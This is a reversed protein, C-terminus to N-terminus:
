VDAAVGLLFARADALMYLSGSVLLMQGPQLADRGAAVAADVDEVTRCPVGADRCVGALAEWDGARYSPVRTVIVQSLLPLLEALAKEREKDALMGLVAVISRGPWYERLAAALAQMGAVNHAGDLLILPQQSVIELRGPWRAEALGTRIAEEPLGLRRAAAVALAANVLQHRGLLAIRLGCLEEGSSLDIYDFSQGSADASVFRVAFDRGFEGLDSGCNQAATRIETLAAEDQAATLAPVGPKIIGAKVAAIEAVTSGLYDMHDIAVNTILALEPMIVNTSDIAGGMGVEIVAYDVQQDTFYRLALATSLEFETPPEAGGAQMQALIPKLQGVRRVVEERSIMEGDIVYRERYSHLHPSNFVATRYGAARLMAAVFASVSGKGNTGGIHIYKVGQRHPEGMLELLRTIRQLGLNIGFKTQSALFELAEAYAAAIDGQGDMMKTDDM